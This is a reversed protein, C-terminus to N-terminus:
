KEARRLIDKPHVFVVPGTPPQVGPYGNTGSVSVIDCTEGNLGQAECIVIVTDGLSVRAGDYVIWNSPARWAGAQWQANGFRGGRPSDM